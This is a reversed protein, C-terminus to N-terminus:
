QSTEQTTATLSDSSKGLQNDFDTPDLYDRWLTIVGDGAITLTGMVPLTAWPLHRMRRHIASCPARMFCPTEEKLETVTPVNLRSSIHTVGPSAPIV